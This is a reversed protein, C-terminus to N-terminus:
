ILFNSVVVSTHVLHRQNNDCGFSLDLRLIVLDFKILYTRRGGEWHKKEGGWNNGLDFFYETGIGGEASNQFRVSTSLRALEM